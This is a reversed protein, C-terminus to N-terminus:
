TPKKTTNTQETTLANQVTTNYAQWAAPSYHALFLTAAAPAVTSVFAQGDQALSNDYAVNAEVTATDDDVLAAAADKIFSAQSRAYGGM